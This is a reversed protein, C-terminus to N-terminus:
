NDEFAEQVRITAEEAGGNLEDKVKLESRAMGEFLEGAGMSADEVAHAAFSSSTSKNAKKGKATTRTKEVRGNL